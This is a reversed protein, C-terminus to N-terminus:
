GRRARASPLARQAAPRHARHARHPEQLRSGSQFEPQEALVRPAGWTCRARARRALQLWEDASQMFINLLESAARTAAPPRTACGRRSRARAGRELTLGALRENLVQAVAVLTAPPVDRRPRGRLAHAGGATAADDGAPGQGGGGRDARDAGARRDDLRPAIAIGLEHTLLGLVQAARRLLLEVASREGAAELEARLSARTWRSRRPQGLLSDVFFRYARDTPM